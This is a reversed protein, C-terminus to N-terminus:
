HLMSQNQLAGLDGYEPHLLNLACHADRISGTNCSHKLAVNRCKHLGVAEIRYAEQHLPPITTVSLAFCPPNVVCAGFMVFMGTCNGKALDCWWM